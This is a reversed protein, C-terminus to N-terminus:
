LGLWVQSSVLEYGGPMEYKLEEVASPFSCIPTINGNVSGLFIRQDKFYDFLITGGRM